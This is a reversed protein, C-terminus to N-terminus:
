RLRLHYRTPPPSPHVGEAQPDSLLDIHTPRHARRRRRAAPDAAATSSRILRSPDPVVTM